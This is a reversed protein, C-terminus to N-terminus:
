EGLFERSYWCSGRGDLLLTGTLRCKAAHCYPTKKLKQPSNRFLQVSADNKCYLATRCNLTMWPRENSYCTFYPGM